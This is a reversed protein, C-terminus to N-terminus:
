DMLIQDRLISLTSKLLRNIIHLVNAVDIDVSAYNCANKVAVTKTLLNLKKKVKTLVM